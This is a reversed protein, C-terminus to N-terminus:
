IDAQCPKPLYKNPLYTTCTDNDVAKCSWEGSTEGDAIIHTWGIKTGIDSESVGFGAVEMCISPSVGATVTYVTKAMEAKTGVYNGDIKIAEDAVAADFAATSPFAAKDASEEELYTKLGSWLVNAETIKSRKMYDSYAPIAVAALIGIIAVVIMLEILTFGLQKKTM